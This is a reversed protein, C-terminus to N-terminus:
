MVLESPTSREAARRVRRGAVLVIVAILLVHAGVIAAAIGLDFHVEPAAGRLGVVASGALIRATLLIGIAAVAAGLLWAAGVTLWLEARRSRAQRRASIGAARLVVSEGRRSRNLGAIVSGAGITALLLAGAAGIWLTVAAPDALAGISLTDAATITATPPVVKRLLDAVPLKGQASSPAAWVQDVPPLFQMHAVLAQELTALDAFIAPQDATGPLLPSILAVRAPLKRAADVAVDVDDGVAVDLADALAPNIAVPLPETGGVVLRAQTTQGAPIPGSMGAGDVVLGYTLLQQFGANGVKPQPSAAWTAAGVDLPGRDTALGTVSLDLDLPYPVNPLAVDIAVVSSGATLGALTATVTGTLPTAPAQPAIPISPLASCAVPTVVGEEDQVWVTVDVPVSAGDPGPPGPEQTPPGDSHSTTLGPRHWALGVSLDLTLGAAGDPLTLGATATALTDTMAPPDFSGPIVPLVGSAATASEAAAASGGLPVGTLLVSADGVTVTRQLAPIVPAAHLASAVTSVESSRYASPRIPDTAPLEVRVPAGNRLINAQQQASRQTPAYVAAMGVSGFAIAILVVIIGFVTTRRAVDRTALWAGVARRRHTMWESLEALLAFVIWAVMAAAVLVAPPAIAAIPDVHVSGEEGVVVASGVRAFRWWAVAAIACLLAVTGSAVVARIRGSDDILQRNAPLRAQHAAPIVITVAAVVGVAVAAFWGAAPLPFGLIASVLAAGGVAVVVAPVAILAAETVAIRVLRGVSAGRSRVLATEARRQLALLRALQILMVLSIAAITLAPIVGVAGAAVVSAIVVDLTHALGGASVAGAPAMAQTATVAAPLSDLAQSMARLHEPLVGDRRPVITWNVLPTASGSTLAGADVVLFGLSSRDAVLANASRAGAADAAFFPDNEFDPAWIAHIVATLGGTTVTDGVTVGLAAAAGEELAAPYSQDGRPAAAFDPWDGAALRAHDTFGDFSAPRLTVPAATGADTGTGTDNPPPVPSTVATPPLTVSRYVTLPLDGFHGAFAQEAAQQQRTPDSALAAQVQVSGANADMAALYDRIGVAQARQNYGIIAALLFATAATICVLAAIIARQAGTRPVTWSRAPM